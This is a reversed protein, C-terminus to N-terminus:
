NGTIILFLAIKFVLVFSERPIYFKLGGANRVSSLFGHNGPFGRGPIIFILQVQSLSENHAPRHVVEVQSVAVYV